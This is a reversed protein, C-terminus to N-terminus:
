LIMAAEHLVCLYYVIDYQHLFENRKETSSYNPKQLYKMIHIFAQMPNGQIGERGKSYMMRVSLKLSFKYFTLGFPLNTLSLVALFVLLIFWECNMSM